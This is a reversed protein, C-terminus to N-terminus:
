ASAAGPAQLEFSSLDAWLMACQRQGKATTQQPGTSLDQDEARGAALLIVLQCWRKSQPPSYRAERDVRSLLGSAPYPMANPVLTGQKAIGPVPPATLWHPGIITLLGKVRFETVRM